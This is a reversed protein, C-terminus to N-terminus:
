LDLNVGNVKNNRLADTPSQTIFTGDIVPVFTFTGQFGDLIENFNIEALTANDVARLCDLADTVNCRPYYMLRCSHFQHCFAGPKLPWMM